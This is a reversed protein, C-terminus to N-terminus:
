NMIMTKWEGATCSQSSGPEMKGTVGWLCPFAAKLDGWLRRWALLDRLREELTLTGERVLRTTEQEVKKQYLLFLVPCDEVCPRVFAAWYTTVGEWCATNKKSCAVSWPLINDTVLLQAAWGLLHAFSPSRDLSGAPSQIRLTEVKPFRPTAASKWNLESVHLARGFQADLILRIIRFLAPM